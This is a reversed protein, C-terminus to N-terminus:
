KVIGSKKRVARTVGCHSGNIRGRVHWARGVHELFAAALLEDFSVSLNIWFGLIADILWVSTENEGGDLEGDDIAILRPKASWRPISL